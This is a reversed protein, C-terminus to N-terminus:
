AAAQLAAYVPEIGTPAEPTRGADSRKEALGSPPASSPTDGAHGSFPVSEAHIAESLLAVDRAAPAHHVYGMTTSIHAHGLYAQVNSLPLKQVAITAFCHRLDHFRLRPLEAAELAKYYRRRLGWGCVHEGLENVFVLDGTGTFHERRSLGDLATMVEDVM